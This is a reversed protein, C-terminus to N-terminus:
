ISIIKIGAKKASSLRKLKLSYNFGNESFSSETLIKIDDSQFKLKNLSKLKIFFEDKLYSVPLSDTNAFNLEINNENIKVETCRFHVLQVRFQESDNALMTEVNENYPKLLKVWEKVSESNRKPDPHLLNPWHLGCVPGKITGDPVVGIMNWDLLDQGRDVTIVGSDFGFFGNTVSESNAMSSFPTNVYNIGRKKLLEAISINAGETKGFSHCFATPVFSSPFEGLKNQKLIESYFDLHREVQDKPRMIGEKTAWEARSFVGDVWYEHGLGHLTIEFNKRNQNIIDAAEELWPGVWKSNDWNQGMWTSNPLKRLINFKDWECLIMAAQPRIGLASGLDAIAKYDAPVHNRKIGTRYPEQRLSGDEGSWWGVDDIVVQIPLPIKATINESLFCTTRRASLTGPFVASAAVGTTILSSKLLFDRRNMRIRNHLYNISEWLKFFGREFNSFISKLKSLVCYEELERVM